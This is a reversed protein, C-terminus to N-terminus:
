EKVTIVEYDSEVNFKPSYFIFQPSNQNVVNVKDSNSEEMNKIVASMDRAVGSVDKLKANSLKEDTIHTLAQMLKIRAKKSIREKVNRIVGVNPKTDYSKTSTAGTTYASVSSPSIGFDKGLELASTRGDTIREIGILKRLGNPVEVSGLGRGKNETVIGLKKLKDELSISENKDERKQVFSNLESDFDTNSVIGMAM